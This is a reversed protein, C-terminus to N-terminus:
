APSFSNSLRILSLKLVRGKTIREILGKIFKAAKRIPQKQPKKISVYFNQLSLNVPFTHISLSEYQVHM